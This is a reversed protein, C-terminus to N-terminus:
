DIGEHKESLERQDKSLVQPMQTVTYLVPSVGLNIMDGIGTCCYSAVFVASPGVM